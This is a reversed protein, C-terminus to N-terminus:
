VCLLDELAYSETETSCIYEQSIMQQVSASSPHSPKPAGKNPIILSKSLECAVLAVLPLQDGAGLVRQLAQAECRREKAMAPM